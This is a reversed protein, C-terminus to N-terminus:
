DLESVELYASVACCISFSAKKLRVLRRIKWSRGMGKSSKEDGNEASPLQPSDDDQDRPTPHRTIPIKYIISLKFIIKIKL